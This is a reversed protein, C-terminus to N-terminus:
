AVFEDEDDEMEANLTPAVSLVGVFEVMDGVRFVNLADDYVQLCMVCVFCVDRNCLM